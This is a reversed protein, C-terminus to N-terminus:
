PLPKMAEQPTLASYPSSSPALVTASAYQTHPRVIGYDNNIQEATSPFAGYNVKEVANPFGATGVKAKRRAMVVAVVCILLAIGFIVGLTAGVVVSTETITSTAVAVSASNVVTTASTLISMVNAKTSTLMIVSAHSTTLAVETTVGAGSQTESLEYSDCAACNAAGCCQSDRNRVPDCFGVIDSCNQNSEFYGGLATDVSCFLGRPSTVGVTNPFNSLGSTGSYKTNEYFCRLPSSSRQRCFCGAQDNLKFGTTSTPAGCVPLAYQSVFEKCFLVILSVHTFSLIWASM